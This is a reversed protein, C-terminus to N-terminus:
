IIIIIIIDATPHHDRTSHEFSTVGRYHRM